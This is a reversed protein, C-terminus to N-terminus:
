VPCRSPRGEQDHFPFLGARFSEAMHHAKAIAKEAYDPPLAENATETFLKLWIGFHELEIPLKVHAVYPHGNYRDTQLLVKSWFNAVVRLHVDWDDVAANFIPGLDPDKRAKAYFDRVLNTIAQEMEITEAETM